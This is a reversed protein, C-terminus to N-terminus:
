HTRINAHGFVIGKSILPSGSVYVSPEGFSNVRLEESTHLSVRGEGYITASSTVSTLGRTNIKNEGYMKYSLHGAEGETIRLINEGYLRAKVTRAEIHALRIDNEGYARVKLKKSTIKGDCVVQGEGRTEILSLSKFTVYATINAYRYRRYLNIKGKDLYVHVRKGRQSIIIDREDVGNYDIRISETDGAVLILDIKPSVVIKDFPKLKQNIQSDAQAFATSFAIAAFISTLLAKM